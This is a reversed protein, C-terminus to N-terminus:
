HRVDPLLPGLAYDGAGQFFLLYPSSHQQRWGPGARAPLCLCDGCGAFRGRCGGAKGVTRGAPGAGPGVRPPHCEGSGPAGAGPAGGSHVSDGRQGPRRGQIGHHRDAHEPKREPPLGGCLHGAPAAGGSLGPRGTGGSRREGRRPQGADPKGIGARLSAAHGRAARGVFNQGAVAPRVFGEPQAGFAQFVGCFDGRKYCQSYWM